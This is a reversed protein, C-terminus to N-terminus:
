QNALDSGVTVVVTASCSSPPPCAIAQTNTDVQQVASSPLKLSTAVAQADRKHGPMYAVVTATRTQDVTNGITGQKYGANILRTAVKHALGSTATGNLVAVTVSSPNVASAKTQHRTTPANSAPASSSTAKTSSGSSTLILLGAVIAVVALAGLLLAFRGWVRSGRRGRRTRPPAVPAPRGAGRAGGPRIQIRPPAQGGQSAARPAPPHERGVGNGGGAVTAPPPGSGAGAEEPAAGSDGPAVRSGGPVVRTVTATGGGESDALATGAAVPSVAGRAASVGAAVPVPEAVPAGAGIPILRTAAALAPAAVGAPAAPASAAVGVPAPAGQRAAVAAPAAAAPIPSALPRAPSGVPQPAVPPAPQGRGLAALRAELDEVRQASEVAQDRLSKTERAQAFYLLVLIALGIISAFGADSGVTSIFHHVSFAFPVSGM